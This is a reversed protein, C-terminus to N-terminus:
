EYKREEDYARGRLAIPLPRDLVSFKKSFEAVQQDAFLRFRQIASISFFNKAVKFHNIKSYKRTKQKTITILSLRYDKLRIYKPLVTITNYVEWM